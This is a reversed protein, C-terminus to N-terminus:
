HCIDTTNFNLAQKRLSGFHLSVLPHPPKQFVLWFAGGGDGLVRSERSCCCDAGPLDLEALEAGDTSSQTFRSLLTQTVALIYLGKEKQQEDNSINCTDLMYVCM